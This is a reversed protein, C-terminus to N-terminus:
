ISFQFGKPLCHLNLLANENVSVFLIVCDYTTKKKKTFFHSFFMSTYCHKEMELIAGPGLQEFSIIDNTLTKFFEFM